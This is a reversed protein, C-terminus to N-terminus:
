KERRPLCHTWVIVAFRWRPRLAPSVASVRWPRGRTTMKSSSLPGRTSIRSRGSDAVRPSLKQWLPVSHCTMAVRVPSRTSMARGMEAQIEFGGPYFPRLEVDARPPSDHCSGTDYGQEQLQQGDGRGADGATRSLGLEMFLVSIVMEAAARLTWTRERASRNEPRM